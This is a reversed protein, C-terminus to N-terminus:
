IKTSNNGLSCVRYLRCQECVGSIYEHECLDLIGLRCIAFDYKVPDDPSMLKLNETIELAMKWSTNKKDTLGIYRCIRATHTDLPLVLQSSRVKEWIGPDIDDEKRVMWRLFLNMRKCASKNEPSSLFYRVGANRPLENNYFPSCDLKLIREVFNSLSKEINDDDEGYGALFFDCLTEYREYVQKLYFLLLSIDMGNNFRHRFDKFVASDKEPDFSLVFDYLSDGMKGLVNEISAFIQKVNGYALASSIVGAIEMDQHKEYNYLYKLPDSELYKRDYTIYLEELYKKLIKIDLKM